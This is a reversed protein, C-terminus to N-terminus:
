ETIDTQNKPVFYLNQWMYIENTVISYTTNNYVFVYGRTKMFETIEEMVTDSNPIIIKCKNDSLSIQWDYMRYISKLQHITTQIEETYQYNDNLVDYIEMVNRTFVGKDRSGYYIRNYAEKIEEESIRKQILM